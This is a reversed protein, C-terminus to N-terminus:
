LQGFGAWASWAGDVVLESGSLYAAECGIAWAVAAAIEAPRALRRLPIRRCLDDVGHGWEGSAAGAVELETAVYGTTVCNVRINARAWDVALARCLGVLAAKSACYASRGPLALSGATSGLFCIAGRGAQKMAASYCAASLLHAGFVNAAFVEAIVAANHSEPPGQHYGIAAYVMSDIRGYRDATTRALLRCAAESTVDCTVQRVNATSEAGPATMGRSVSVVQYGDGALRQCIASGVGGTGGAVIVVPRDGSADASPSTTM